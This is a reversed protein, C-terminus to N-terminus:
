VVKEGSWERECDALIESYEDDSIEPVVIIGEQDRHMETIGPYKRALLKLEVAQRRVTSLLRRNEAELDYKEVASRIALKIEYDSWPKTFFRYIEGRNVANMTTDLGAHGTLMIRIIDSYRNRVEALFDAGSMGPMHEDSVVVQVRKKKLLELAEEGDQASFIRYPEDFLSRKLSAIVNKEDDVLLISNLQEM